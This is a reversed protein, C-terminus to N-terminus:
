SSYKITTFDYIHMWQLYPIAIDVVQCDLDQCDEVWTSHLRPEESYIEHLGTAYNNFTKMVGQRDNIDFKRQFECWLSMQHTISVM